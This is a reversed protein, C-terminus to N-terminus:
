LVYFFINSKQFKRAIIINCDRIWFIRLHKIIALGM